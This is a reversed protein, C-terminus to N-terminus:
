NSIPSAQKDENALSNIFAAVQASLIRSGAENLHFNDIFYSDSYVSSTDARLLPIGSTSALQIFHTSLLQLQNNDKRKNSRSPPFLFIIRTGKAQLLEITQRFTNAATDNIKEAQPLEKPSVPTTLQIAITDSVNNKFINVFGNYINHDFQPVRRGPILVATRNYEDFFSYKLFPMYKILATPFGNRHMYSRVTDNKLYFLYPFREKLINYKVLMSNDVGIVAFDPPQHHQLYVTSILKMEEEDCAGIALNYSRFGTLSDVYYPNIGGHIRSNGLFIINFDQNQDSAIDMKDFVYYQMRQRYRYDFFAGVLYGLGMVLLVVILLRKLYM